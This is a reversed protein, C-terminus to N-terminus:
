YFPRFVQKPPERLMMTLLAKQVHLRNEAQDFVVSNPGDIVEDTIEQGRHAALCHMVLCDKKALKLVESNLQYPRLDKKRKKAQEEEGMSVWTDTYIIDANTVAQAVKPVIKLTTWFKRSNEEAQKLIEKNPSYKEPCAVYMDMGLKTCALMLSHCVNSAGDGLYALKLGKLVKKKERITYMDALVQCPHELDSLGNIVPIKANRSLEEVERHSYVRAVIGDVYREMVKTTDKISEGRSLQMDNWNMYISKGGLQWMGVEFSVRTRTSPKEFILALTRGKLLNEYRKADKRIEDARRFVIQMEEVSLDNISLLDKNM